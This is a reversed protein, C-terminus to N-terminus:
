WLSGPLRPALRHLRLGTAAAPVHHAACDLLASAVEPTFDYVAVYDLAQPLAQSQVVLFHGRAAAVVELFPASDGEAKVLFGSAPAALRLFGATGTFAKLVTFRDTAKGDEIQQEGAYVQLPPLLPTAAPDADPTELRVFAGGSGMGIDLHHSDGTERVFCVARGAADAGVLVGGGGDLPVAGDLAGIPDSAALAPPLALPTCLLALALHRLLM